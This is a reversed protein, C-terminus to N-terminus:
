RLVRRVSRLGTYVIRARIFAQRFVSLYKIVCVEKLASKMALIKVEAPFESEKVVQDRSIEKGYYENNEVSSTIM